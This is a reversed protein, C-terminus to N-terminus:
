PCVETEKWQDGAARRLISRRGGESLDVYDVEDVFLCVLSFNQLGTDDSGGDVGRSISDLLKQKEKTVKSGPTPKRFSSKMTRSLSEWQRNLESDWEDQTPPHLDPLEDWGKIAKNLTPSILPYELPDDGKVFGPHYSKREMELPTEDSEDTKPNEPLTAPKPLVINPTRDSDLFKAIGSFRFQKRLKHSYFCAEFNGKSLIEGYKIMRKDTTFTLVNTKKENFLFGRFAVTRVHPLGSQDVTAFAFTIFPQTELETAAAATFSPVWPAMVQAM